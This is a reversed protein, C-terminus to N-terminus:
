NACITIETVQKNELYARSPVFLPVSKEPNNYIKKFLQLIRFSLLATMVENPILLCHQLWSM